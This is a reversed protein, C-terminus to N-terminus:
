QSSGQTADTFALIRRRKSRLALAGFTAGGVVLASAIAIQWTRRRIRRKEALIQQYRMERQQLRDAAARYEARSFTKSDSFRKLEDASEQAIALAAASQPGVWFYYLVPGGLTFAVAALVISLVIRVIM